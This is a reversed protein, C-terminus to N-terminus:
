EESEKKDGCNPCFKNEKKWRIEDYTKWKKCCSSCEVTYGYKDFISKTFIWKGKKMKGCERCKDAFDTVTVGKPTVPPLAQIDEVNVCYGEPELGNGYAYANDLVAQRSVCDECPAQKLAEIGKKLAFDYDNGQSDEIMGILNDLLDIAKEQTM